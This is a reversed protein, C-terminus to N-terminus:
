NDFDDPSDQQETLKVKITQEKGGRSIVLTVTDGIDNEHVRAVFDSKNEPKKGNISIIKDGVKLGAKDAEDSTVGVIYIGEGDLHYYEAYDSDIDSVNIGIYGKDPTVGKDILSDIIDSVSNIPIAFGLGEVGTASTKAVVIGILDGAGNFLGGGSNGPNIASDTQILELTTDNDLTLRRELASVIGTTATGGLSGLPNGIAVTQDGVSLKSSDGITAATLNKASIKIVAIDNEPETGVLKARYSDGNHLTVTIKNADEIVHNNTVIYGDSKVIVGSGASESIAQRGFMGTTVSNTNIEVVADINKAIIEQTSLKSNSNSDTSSSTLNKYSGPTNDSQRTILVSAATSIIATFIMVLILSVIFVKKTIYSSATADNNMRRNSNSHYGSNAFGNDTTRVRKARPQRVDKVFTVSDNEDVTRYTKDDDIHYSSESSVTNPITDPTVDPTVDTVVDPSNNETSNENLNENMNENENANEHLNKDTDSM